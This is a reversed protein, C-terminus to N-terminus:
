PPIGWQGEIKPTQLWGLKAQANLHSHHPFSSPNHQHSVEVVNQTPALWHALHQAHHQVRTRVNAYYKKHIPMSNTYLLPYTDMHAPETYIYMRVQSHIHTQSFMHVHSHIHMQSYM